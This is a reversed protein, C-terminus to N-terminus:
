RTNKAAGSCMKVKKGEGKLIVTSPEPNASKGAPAPRPQVPALLTKKAFGKASFVNVLPNQLPFENEKNSDHHALGSSGVCPGPTSQTCLEELEANVTNTLWPAVMNCDEVTHSSGSALIAKQLAGLDEHSPDVPTASGRPTIILSKIRNRCQSAKMVLPSISDIPEEKAEEKPRVKSSSGDKWEGSSTLHNKCWGLYDNVCPMELKFGNNDLLLLLHDKVMIKIVLQKMSASIRTWTQPTVKWQILEVWAGCLSVWIAKLQKPTVPDGNEQELWPVKGCNLAQAVPLLVFAEYDLKSWFHIKPYEEKMNSKGKSPHHTCVNVDTLLFSLPDMDEPLRLVSILAHFAAKITDHETTTKMLEKKLDNIAIKYMMSSQNHMMQSSHSFFLDQLFSQSENSGSYQAQQHNMGTQSSMDPTDLINSAGSQFGSHSRDLAEEFYWRVNVEVIGNQTIGDSLTAAAGAQGWGVILEWIQLKSCVRGPALLKDRMWQSLLQAGAGWCGKGLWVWCGLQLAAQTEQNWLLAWTLYWGSGADWGCHLKCRRTGHYLLVWGQGFEVNATSIHWQGLAQTWLVIKAVELGGGGPDKYQFYM